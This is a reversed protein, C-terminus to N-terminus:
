DQRDIAAIVTMTVGWHICTGSALGLLIRVITSPSDIVNAGVDYLIIGLMVLLAAVRIKMTASM